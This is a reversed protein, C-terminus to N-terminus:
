ASGLREVAILAAGYAPDTESRAITASPAFREVSREFMDRLSAGADWLSGVLAVEVQEAGNGLAKEYVAEALRALVRGSRMLIRRAVFDGAEAARAVTGALSAIAVRSLDGGYVAGVLTDWESAFGSDDAIMSTLLTQEGVGDIAQMVSAIAERGVGYGSGADDILYGYGGAFHSKGFGDAGFAVSGTGAIVIIGRGGPFAGRFAAEYDHVLVFKAGPFIGGLERVFPDHRARFSYGAVAACVAGVRDVDIGSNAVAQRVSGVADALPMFAINCPGATADGAPDGLGQARDLLTYARVRTKTGGGDIGVVLTM